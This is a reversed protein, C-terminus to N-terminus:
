VASFFIKPESKLLEDYMFPVCHLVNWIIMNYMYLYQLIKQLFSLLGRHLLYVVRVYINFQVNFSIKKLSTQKFYSNGALEFM